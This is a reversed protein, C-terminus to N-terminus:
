RYALEITGKKLTITEGAYLEDGSQLSTDHDAEIRIIRAVGQATTQPERFDFLGLFLGLMLAAAAIAGGFMWFRGLSITKESPNSTQPAFENSVSPEAALKEWKSDITALTRLASRAESDSRLLDNLEEAQDESLRGDLYRHLLENEHETM